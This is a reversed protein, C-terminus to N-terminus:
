KPIRQRFFFSFMTGKRKEEGEDEEKWSRM